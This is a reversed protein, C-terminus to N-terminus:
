LEDEVAFVPLVYFYSYSKDSQLLSVFFLLTLYLTISSNDNYIRDVWLVDTITVNSCLGSLLSPTFHLFHSFSRLTM